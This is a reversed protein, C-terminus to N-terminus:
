HKAIADRPPGDLGEVGQRGVKSLDVNTTSSPDRLASAEPQNGSIPAETRGSGVNVNRADASQWDPAVPPQEPLPLNAKVREIKDAKSESM